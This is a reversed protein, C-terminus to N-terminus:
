RQRATDRQRWVGTATQERILQGKGAIGQRREARHLRLPLFQRPRREDRSNETERDKDRTGNGPLHCGPCDSGNDTHKNEYDTNGTAQQAEPTQENNNTSIRRVAASKGMPPCSRQSAGKQAM